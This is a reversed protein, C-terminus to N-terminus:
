AEKPPVIYPCAPTERLLLSQRRTCWIGSGRSLMKPVLASSLIQPTVLNVKITEEIEKETLDEVLNSIEIGANNIFIDITGVESEVKDIYRRVQESDTADFPVAVGHIEQALSALADESSCSVVVKAGGAGVVRGIECGM